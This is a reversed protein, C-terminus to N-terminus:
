TVGVHDGFVLTVLIMQRLATLKHVLRSQYCVNGGLEDTSPGYQLVNINNQKLQSTALVVIRMDGGYSRLVGIDRM